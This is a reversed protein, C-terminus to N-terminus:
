YEFYVKTEDMNSKKLRFNLIFLNEANEIKFFPIETEHNSNPKKIIEM